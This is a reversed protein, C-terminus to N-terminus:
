KGVASSNVLVKPREKEPLENIAAQVVSVFNQRYRWFGGLAISELITIHLAFTAHTLGLASFTLMM